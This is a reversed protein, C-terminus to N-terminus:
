EGGIKKLEDAIFCFDAESYPIPINQQVNQMNEAKMGERQTILMEIKAYM